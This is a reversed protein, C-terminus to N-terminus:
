VEGSVVPSSSSPDIAPDSVSGQPSQAESSNTPSEQESTASPRRGLKAKSPVIPAQITKAEDLSPWHAPNALLQPPSSSDPSTQDKNPTPM